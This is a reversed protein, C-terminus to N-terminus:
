NRLALVAGRGPDWVLLAPLPSQRDHQRRPRRSSSRQQKHRPAPRPRRSATSPRRPPRLPPAPTLLRPTTPPPSSHQGTKVKSECVREATVSKQREDRARAQVPETCQQVHRIGDGAIHGSLFTVFLQAAQRFHIRDRDLTSNPSGRTVALQLAVAARM